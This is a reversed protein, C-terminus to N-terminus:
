RESGHSRVPPSSPIFAFCRPHDPRTAFPLMDRALDLMLDPEMRLGEPPADRMTM